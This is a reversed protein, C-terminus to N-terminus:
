PLTRRAIQSVVRGRGDGVAASSAPIVASIVRAVSAPRISGPTSGAWAAVHTMATISDSNRRAAMLSVNSAASCVEVM